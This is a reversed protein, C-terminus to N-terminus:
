QTKFTGWFWARYLGPTVRVLNSIVLHLHTRARVYCNYINIKKCTKHDIYTYSCNSLTNKLNTYLFWYTSKLGRPASSHISTSLGRGLLWTEEDTRRVRHGSIVLDLSQKIILPRVFSGSLLKLNCATKWFLKWIIFVDIRSLM